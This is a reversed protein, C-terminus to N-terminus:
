RVSLDLDYPVGFWTQKVGIDVGKKQLIADAFAGPIGRLLYGGVIGIAWGVVPITALFARVATMGAVCASYVASAGMSGVAFTLASITDYSIYYGGDVYEMEENDVEVYSARTISIWLKQKFCMKRTLYVKKSFKIQM